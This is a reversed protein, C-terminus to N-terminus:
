LLSQLCKSLLLEYIKTPFTLVYSFYYYTKYNHTTSHPSDAYRHISFTWLCNNTNKSLVNYHSLILLQAKQSSLFVLPQKGKNWEKARAMLEFRTWACNFDEKTIETETQGAMSIGSRVGIYCIYFKVLLVHPVIIILYIIIICRSIYCTITLNSM